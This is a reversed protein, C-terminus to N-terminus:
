RIVTTPLGSAIVLDGHMHDEEDQEHDNGAGAVSAACYYWLWFYAKDAACAADIVATPSLAGHPRPAAPTGDWTQGAAPADPTTPPATPSPSRRLHRLLAEQLVAIKAALERWRPQAASQLEDEQQNVQPACGM